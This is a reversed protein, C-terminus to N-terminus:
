RGPLPLPRPAPRPAAPASRTPRPASAWGAAAAQPKCETVPHTARRSWVPAGLLEGFRRAREGPLPLGRVAKPTAPGPSLLLFSPPPPSSVRESGLPQPRAARRPREAQFLGPGAGAAGTGRSANGAKSWRTATSRKPDTTRGPLSPHARLRPRTAPSGPSQPPALPACVAGTLGLSEEDRLPFEAMSQTKGAETRKKSPIGLTLLYRSPVFLSPPQSPIILNRKIAVELFVRPSPISPPAAALPGLPVGTNALPFSLTPSPTSHKFRRRLGRGLLSSFLPLNPLHVWGTPCGSPASPWAGYGAWSLCAQGPHQSRQSHEWGRSRRLM